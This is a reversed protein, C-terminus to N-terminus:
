ASTLTQFFTLFLQEGITKKGSCSFQDNELEFGNQCSCSFSGETNICIHDCGGNDTLCENIDAFILVYMAVTCMSRTQCARYTLNSLSIEFSTCMDTYAFGSLYLTCSVQATSDTATWAISLTVPVLSAASLTPVRINVDEM